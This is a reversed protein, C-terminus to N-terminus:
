RKLVRERERKGKVRGGPRTGRPKHLVVRKNHRRGKAGAFLAKQGHPHPRTLVSVGPVAPDVIMRLRRLPLLVLALPGLM